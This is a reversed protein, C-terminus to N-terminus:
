IFSLRKFRAPISARATVASSSVPISAARVIAWVKATSALLLVLPVGTASRRLCNLATSRFTRVWFGDKLPVYEAQSDLISSPSSAAKMLRRTM